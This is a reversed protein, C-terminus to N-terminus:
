EGPNKYWGRYDIAAAGFEGRVAFKISDTDFNDERQSRLGGNGDLYAHKLGDVTGPDASLYWEKAGLRPEVILELGLASFMNVGSTQTPVIATNLLQYATVRQEPAVILYKPRVYIRRKGNVGFQREMATYAVALNLATLLGKDTNTAINGHGTHFINKGDDMMSNGTLLGWIIDGQLTNWDLVFRQPIKELASLDDNIFMKRTFKIGEGFSKVSLTQKSEVMKGYKLEDGEPVETMGNVTDFQYFNKPKFNPVTTEMSIKSWQETIFDYDQRLLKNTLAELLFPLDSTSADRKGFIQDVIAIPTMNKTNVGREQMLIEAISLISRGAFPNDKVTDMKFVSPAARHLLAAEAAERKKDIAEAGLEINMPNIPKDQKVYEELISQRIEDLLKGSRFLEIAKSDELKAARTSVLISDLRKGEDDTTTKRVQEISETTPTPAPTPTPTKVAEELIMQRIEEVPKESNYFELAREDSLKAASTSKVIAELRSKEVDSGNARIEAITTMRSQKSIINITHTQETSRIKSNIDAQVPALSVEMPEWDTARYTPVTESKTPPIREFSYVNYGVSIGSVIGNEIDSILADDARAGLTVTGTMTNGEFRINDCRGLQTMVGGAYHNDFVPLGSNARDMRVSKPNCDLVENYPEDSWYPNRFVPTESAFTVDFTRADKNFTPKSIQARIFSKPAEKQKSM